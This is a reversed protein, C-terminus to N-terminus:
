SGQMETAAQAVTIYTPFITDTWTAEFRKKLDPNVGALVLFGKQRRLRAMLSVMASLGFGDLEELEALDLVLRRCGEDVLRSTAKRFQPSTSVVLEGTLSLMSVGRDESTHVTLSAM